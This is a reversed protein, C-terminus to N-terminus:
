IFKCLYGNYAEGSHIHKVLTPQSASLNKSQLYEVCKGLSPFVITNELNNVDALIVPKSLSSLPKNKNYKIRDKELILDLDSIDKVKATLVPIRSFLYKDLYYTGNELHKTFTTHHVNLKRIFDIQQTSSFYLISMDRNYM